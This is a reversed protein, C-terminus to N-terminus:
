FRNFLLIFLGDTHMLLYKLFESSTDVRQKDIPLARRHPGLQRGRADRMHMRNDTRNPM